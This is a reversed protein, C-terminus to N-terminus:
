WLCDDGIEGRAFFNSHRDRGCLGTHEIQMAVVGISRAGIRCTEIQALILVDIEDFSSATLSSRPKQDASACLSSFRRSTVLTTSSRTQSSMGHRLIGVQALANVAGAAGRRFPTSNRAPLMWPAEMIAGVLGDASGFTLWFYSHECTRGEAGAAHIEGFEDLEASALEALRKM